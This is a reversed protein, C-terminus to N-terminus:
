AIRELDAASVGATTVATRLATRARVLLSEFAKLKMDMLAAAAANSLQEYYTLVIAARQRDPLSALAQRTVDGLRATDILDDAAARDDVIDPPMEDSLRARRRLRDLCLNTAIRRLWAPVGGGVPKWAAAHDWMRLLSEQVVDEAESADALLRWSLRHLGAAHREALTRFASADRRAVAAILQADDQGVGSQGM